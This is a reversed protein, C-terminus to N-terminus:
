WPWLLGVLMACTMLTFTPAMTKRLLSSGGGIVIGSKVLINTLVATGISRAATQEDIGNRVTALESLSLTIADM